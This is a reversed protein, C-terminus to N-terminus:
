VFWGSLGQAALYLGIAGVIPALKGNGGSSIRECISDFLGAVAILVATGVFAMRLIENASTWGAIWPLFGFTAAAFIALSGYHRDAESTFIREALLTILSILVFNPLDAKPLIMTPFFSRVVTLALLVAGVVTALITSLLWERKKM